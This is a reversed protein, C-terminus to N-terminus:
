HRHTHGHPHKAEHHAIIEAINTDDVLPLSEKQFKELVDNLLVREHGAHFLTISGGSRIMEYPSSGMEQFIIVDVGEDALWEIVARGGEAENAKIGIKGDEVFAFWKAKGFLPALPPNERNMKIPMAIKM